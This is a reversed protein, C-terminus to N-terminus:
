RRGERAERVIDMISVGKLKTRRRLMRAIIEERRAVLQADSEMPLIRAVPNGHRTIVVEQGHAVRDLLQSFGAKADYV